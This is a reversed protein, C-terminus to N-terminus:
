KGQKPNVDKRSKYANLISQAQMMDAKLREREASMERVKNELHSIYDLYSPPFATTGNGNDFMAPPTTSVEKKIESGKMGNVELVTASHSPTSIETKIQSEKRVGLELFTVSPATPLEKKIQCEKKANLEVLPFGFISPPSSGKKTIPCEQITTLSSASSNSHQPSPDDHRSRKNPFLTTSEKNVTCTSPCDELGESPSLSLASGSNNLLEDQRFTTSQTDQLLLGFKLHM